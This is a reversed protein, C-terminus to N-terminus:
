QANLNFTSRQPCQSIIREGIASLPNGALALQCSVDVTAGNVDAAAGSKSSAKAIPQVQTDADSETASNSYSHGDSDCNTNFNADADPQSYAHSNAHRRGDAGPNCGDYALRGQLFRDDRRREAAASRCRVPFQVIHWVPDRERESEACNNRHELYHFRRDSDCDV